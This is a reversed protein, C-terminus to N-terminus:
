DNRYSFDRGRGKSLTPSLNYPTLPHTGKEGKEPIKKSSKHGNQSTKETKKLNKQEENHM